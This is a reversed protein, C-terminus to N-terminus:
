HSSQMSSCSTLRTRTIQTSLKNQKADFYKHVTM